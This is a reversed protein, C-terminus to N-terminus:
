RSAEQVVASVRSAIRPWALEGARQRGAAGLRERLPTDELLRVLADAIAGPDRPDVLLGTEGDVVADVAGGVNGAVVPLGHASAETYAIGFGEGGSGPDLRSPMAFVHAKGLLRDREENSVAGLFSASEGLVAGASAEFESRLPGDGVVLWRAGAVRERVSRMAEIMVDHGKYRDALRSVTIVTPPARRQLQAEAPVDVGPPIVEISAADAGADVALQRTHASVAITRHAFKLAFAAVRPRTIAEDAHLYQVYPIGLARSLAVAAPALTIHMNLIRTPKWRLGTAVAYANLAAMRLRQDYGNLSLRRVTGPVDVDFSAAGPHALTM